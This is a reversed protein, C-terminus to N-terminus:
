NIKMPKRIYDQILSDYSNRLKTTLISTTYRYEKDEHKILSIPMVGKIANTYIADVAKNLFLSHVNKEEIIIGEKKAAEIVTSRTVGSLIGSELVPTIIKDEMVLFINARSCETLEKKENVYLVDDFGSENAEKFSFYSDGRSTTKNRFSISNIDRSLQKTVLSYNSKLSDMPSAMILVNFKEGEPEVRKSLLIKVRSSKLKNAKITDIIWSRIEELEVPFPMGIERASTTLRKYHEEFFIPIGEECRITEYLGFGFQYSLDTISIKADSEPIVKGNLFVLM